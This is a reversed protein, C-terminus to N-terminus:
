MFNKGNKVKEKQFKLLEDYIVIFENTLLIFCSIFLLVNSIYDPFNIFIFILFFIIIKIIPM